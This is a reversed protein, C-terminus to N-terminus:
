GSAPYGALARSKRHKLLILRLWAGGAAVWLVWAPILLLLPSPAPDGLYVLGAGGLLTAACALPLRNRCLPIRSWPFVCLLFAFLAAALAWSTRLLATGGFGLAALLLASALDAGRARRGRRAAGPMRRPGARYSRISQHLLAALTLFVLACALHLRLTAGLQLNCAEVLLAAFIICMLAACGSNWIPVDHRPDKINM